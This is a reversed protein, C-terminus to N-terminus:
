KNADSLKSDASKLIDNTEVKVDVAKAIIEAQERQENLEKLERSERQRKVLKGGFHWVLAILIGYGILYQM